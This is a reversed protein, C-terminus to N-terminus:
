IHSWLRRYIVGHITGLSVGYEESLTKATYKRPVYKKRIELVKEETLKSTPNSEGRLPNRNSLSKKKIELVEKETKGLLKDSSKWKYHKRCLDKAYHKLRCGAVLCFRPKKTSHMRAHERIDIIELNEIRNDDKIENIHHVHERTKLKRGVHKEMVERHIYIKKNKGEHQKNKYLYGRDDKRIKM